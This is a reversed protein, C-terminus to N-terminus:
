RAQRALLDRIEALLVEQPTPAPPTTVEAAEAKTRRMRNIAKVLMFLGLVVLLFSFVTNLFVGYSLVVAGAKRAEEASTVAVGAPNRLVAFMNTFDPAQVVASILPTIIDVVLSAVVAGFAVGIIIGIAMDIMNGKLAFEKFERLM